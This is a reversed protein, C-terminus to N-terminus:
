DLLEEFEDLDDELNVQIRTRAAPTMGFHALLSEIDKRAKRLIAVEPRQQSYGKPTTMVFRNGLKHEEGTEGDTVIIPQRLIELADRYEAFTEALAIMAVEDAETFLGLRRLLPGYKRWFKKARPSLWRPPRGGIKVPAPLPEDDKIPRKGPNGELLKLHRPKGPPGGTAIKAM